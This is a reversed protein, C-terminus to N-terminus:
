PQNEVSILHGGLEPFEQFLDHRALAANVFAFTLILSVFVHVRSLCGIVSRRFCFFISPKSRILYLVYRRCCWLSRHGPVTFLGCAIAEMLQIRADM